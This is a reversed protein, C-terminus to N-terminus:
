SSSKTFNRFSEEDGYELFDKHHEPENFGGGSKHKIGCWYRETEGSIVRAYNLLGNAYGCYMCNFKEMINLYKLKQRDIRIYEKRKIYKMGYCPFCIRHYVELWIDFIVLPIGMSYIFPAAVLHPFYLVPHKKFEM